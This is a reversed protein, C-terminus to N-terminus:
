ISINNEKCYKYAKVYKDSMKAGSKKTMEIRYNRYEEDTNYRKKHYGKMYERMYDKKKQKAIEEKSKLVEDVSSLDPAIIIDAM